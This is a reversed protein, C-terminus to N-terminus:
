NNQSNIRIAAIVWKKEIDRRSLTLLQTVSKRQRTGDRLAEYFEQFIRFGSHRLGIYLDYVTKPLTTILFIVSGNKLLTRVRNKRCQLDAFKNGWKKSSSQYGHLVIAQPLYYAKWGMLQCRWGLDLDEAYMFYSRDFFGSELRAEWLMKRRYAAASASPVFIEEVEDDPRAPANFGRDGSSGTALLVIGKTNTRDPNKKFLVRSQFMGVDNDAADIATQIQAIWDPEAFVDSNLTCIWDGTAIEIGRNCAEAFGLNCEMVKLIIEPYNMRVMEVTGDDSHNDILIIEFDRNTQSRLSQLCEELESQNNWSVIIVSISM